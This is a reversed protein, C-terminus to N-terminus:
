RWSFPSGVHASFRDLAVQCAKVPHLVGVDVIGVDRRKSVLKEFLCCNCPGWRFVLQGDAKVSVHEFPQLGVASTVLRADIVNQAGGHLALERAPHRGHFCRLLIRTCAAFRPWRSPQTNLSSRLRRGRRDCADRGLRIMWKGKAEGRNEQCGGSCQFRM